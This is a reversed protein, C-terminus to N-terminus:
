MVHICQWTRQQCGHSVCRGLVSSVVRVYVHRLTPLADVTERVHYSKLTQRPRVVLLSLVSPTGVPMPRFSVSVFIYRKPTTVNCVASRATSMYSTGRLVGGVCGRSVEPQFLVTYRATTLVRRPQGPTLISDVWLVLIEALSHFRSCVIQAQVRARHRRRYWVGETDASLGAQQSHVRAYGLM